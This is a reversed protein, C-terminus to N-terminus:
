TRQILGSFMPFPTEAGGVTLPFPWPIVSSAVAVQPLDLDM